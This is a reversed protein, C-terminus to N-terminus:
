ATVVEKMYLEVDMYEGNKLEEIDNLEWFVNQQYDYALSNEWDEGYEEVLEERLTQDVHEAFYDLTNKRLKAGFIEKTVREQPLLSLAYREWNTGKSNDGAARKINSEPRIASLVIDM